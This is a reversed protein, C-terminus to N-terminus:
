KNVKLNVIRFDKYKPVYGLSVRVNDVKKEGNEIYDVKIVEDVGYIVQGDELPYEKAMEYGEVKFKELKRAESTLMLSLAGDKYYSLKNIKTVSSKIKSSNINYMSNIITSNVKELTAEVNALDEFARKNDPSAGINIEPMPNFVPTKM